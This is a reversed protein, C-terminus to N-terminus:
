RKTQKVLSGIPGGWGEEDVEAAVAIALGELWEAKGGDDLEEEANMEAGAVYLSPSLSNLESCSTPTCHLRQDWKHAKNARVLHPHAM